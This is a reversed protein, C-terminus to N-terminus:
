HLQIEADTLRQQLALSLQEPEAGMAPRVPYSLRGAAIDFADPAATFLGREVAVDIVRASGDCCVLGAAYSAAIGPAPQPAAATHIWIRADVRRVGDCFLVTRPLEVAVDADIPTWEATPTEFELNLRANSEHGADGNTDGVFALGHGPDWPDVTFTGAFSTLTMV